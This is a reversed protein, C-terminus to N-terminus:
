FHESSTINKTKWKILKIFTSMFYFFMFIYMAAYICSSTYIHCSTRGVHSHWYWNCSQVYLNDEPQMYLNTQLKWCIYWTRVILGHQSTNQYLMKICCEICCKSVVNRYLMIICITSVGNQYLIYICWESVVNHYLIYICCESVVNHYLLIICFTSVVNQVLM